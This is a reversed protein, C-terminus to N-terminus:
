DQDYEYLGLLDYIVRIDLKWVRQLKYATVDIEHDHPQETLYTWHIALLREDDFVSENIIFGELHKELPNILDLMAEKDFWDDLLGEIREREEDTAQQKFGAYKNIVFFNNLRRM